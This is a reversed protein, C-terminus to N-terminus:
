LSNSFWSRGKQIPGAFTTRPFWNGLHKGQQFNLAPFFNTAGFRWHDDGTDTQLALVGAGAGPFQAGYRGTAVAATRVPDVNVRANFLGSAPNNIKFGDLLYVTDETHAGAIHLLGINDQVIGPIAPLANQLTHSSPVPDERIEHAVLEDEHRTQQPDVEHPSAVVDVNSRMEYEHNLTVAIEASESTVTVAYNSLRFFGSKEFNLHYDGRCVAEFRFRGLDNTSTHQAIPAISLTVEVGTVPQGTEDE